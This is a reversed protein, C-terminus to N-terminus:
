RTADFAKVVRLDATALSALSTWSDRASAAEARRDADGPDQSGAAPVRSLTAQAKKMLEAIRSKLHPHTESRREPPAAPTQTERLIERVAQMEQKLQKVADIVSSAEPSVLGSTASNTEALDSKAVDPQTVDGPIAPNM